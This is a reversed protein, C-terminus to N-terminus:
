QNNILMSLFHDNINGTKNQHKKELETIESKLKQIENTYSIKLSDIQTM